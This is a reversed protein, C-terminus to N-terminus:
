GGLGVMPHAERYETALATFLDPDSLWLDDITEYGSEEALWDAQDIAAAVRSADDPFYARAM